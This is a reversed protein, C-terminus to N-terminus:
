AEGKAKAIAESALQCEFPYPLGEREANAEAHKTLRVLAALMEPAAAILHANAVVEEPNNPRQHGGNVYSSGNTAAVLKEGQAIRVTWAVWGHEGNDKPPIVLREPAEYAPHFRWPGPTHKAESM